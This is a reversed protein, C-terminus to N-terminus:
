KCITKSVADHLLNGIVWMHCRDGIIQVNRQDRPHQAQPFKTSIEFCYLDDIGTPTVSYTRECDDGHQLTISTM